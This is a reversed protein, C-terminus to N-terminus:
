GQLICIELEESLKKRDEKLTDQVVELRATVMQIRLKTREAQEKSLKIQKRVTLDAFFGDFFYEAIQLFDDAQIQIDERITIDALEAKLQHLEKQLLEVLEQVRDLASWGETHELINLIENVTELAKNGANVAERVEQVEQDMYQVKQELYLIRKAAEGGTNKLYYEKKKLCDTYQQECGILAALELECKKIYEEILEQERVAADYKVAAMYAEKREKDLMEEKKGTLKYFFSSLNHGELREVDELEDQRELALEEVKKQLYEKQDQLDKLQAKIRQQHFVQNQLECLQTDFHRM